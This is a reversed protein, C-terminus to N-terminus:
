SDAELGDAENRDLRRHPTAEHLRVAVHDALKMWAQALELLQLREVRDRCEEAVLICELARDRYEGRRDMFKATFRSLKLAYHRAAAM